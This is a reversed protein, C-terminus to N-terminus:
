RLSFYDILSIKLWYRNPCLYFISRQLSRLIVDLCDFIYKALKRCCVKTFRNIIEFHMIKSVVKLWIIFFKITDFNKISFIQRLFISFDVKIVKLWVQSKKFNVRAFKYQFARSYSIQKRQPWINLINKRSYNFIQLKESSAECTLGTGNFLDTYMEYFNHRILYGIIIISKLLYLRLKQM